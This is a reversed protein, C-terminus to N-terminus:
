VGASALEPSSTYIVLNPSQPSPFTVDRRSELELNMSEFLSRVLPFDRESRMLFGTFNSNLKTVYELPVYNDQPLTVDFRAVHVPRRGPLAFLNFHKAKLSPARNLKVRRTMSVLDTYKDRYRPSWLKQGLDNRYYVLSYDYLDSLPQATRHGLKIRIAATSDLNVADVRGSGFFGQESGFYLLRYAACASSYIDGMPLDFFYFRSSDM